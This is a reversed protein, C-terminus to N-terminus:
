LAPAGANSVGSCRASLRRTLVIFRRPWTSTLSAPGSQDHSRFHALTIARALRVSAVARRAGQAVGDVYKIERLWDPTHLVKTGPWPRHLHSSNTRRPAIIGSGGRAGITSKAGLLSKASRGPPSLGGSIAPRDSHRRCSNPRRVLLLNKPEQDKNRKVQREQRLYKRPQDLLRGVSRTFPQVRRWCKASM